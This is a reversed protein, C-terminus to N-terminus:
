KLKAREFSTLQRTYKRAEGLTGLFHTIQLRSWRPLELEQNDRAGGDLGRWRDLQVYGQVRYKDTNILKRFIPDEM